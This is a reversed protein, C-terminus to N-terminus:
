ILGIEYLQEKEIELETLIDTTIDIYNTETKAWYVKWYRPVYNDGLITIGRGAAILGQSEETARDDLYYINDVDDYSFVLDEDVQYKNLPTYDNTDVDTSRDWFAGSIPTHVLTNVDVQVWDDPMIDNHYHNFCPYSFYDITGPAAGDLLSWECMTNNMQAETPLFSWSTGGKFADIMRVQAEGDCFTKHKNSILDLANPCVWRGSYTETLQQLLNDRVYRDKSYPRFHAACYTGSCTVVGERNYQITELRRRKADVNLTKGLLNWIQSSHWDFAGHFNWTKRAFYELKHYSCGGEVNYCDPPPTSIIDDEAEAEVDDTCQDFAAFLEAEFGTGDKTWKIHDCSSLESYVISSDSFKTHCNIPRKSWAIAVDMGDSNLAQIDFMLSTPLEAETVNVAWYATFGLGDANNPYHSFARVEQSKANYIIGCIFNNAEVASPNTSYWAMIGEEPNCYFRNSPYPHNLGTDLLTPDPFSPPIPYLPWENPPDVLESPYHLPLFQKIRNKTLMHSAAVWREPVDGVDMMFAKTAKHPNNYPTDVMKELMEPSAAEKVSLEYNGATNLLRLWFYKFVGGKKIKVFFRPRICCRPKLDKFGVILYNAEARALLVEDDVEFATHGDDVNDPACHYFFELNELISDDDLRVNAQKTARSIFVITGFKTAIDDSSSLLAQNKRM